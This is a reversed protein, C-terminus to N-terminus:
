DLLTHHDLKFCPYPSSIVTLIQGADDIQRPGSAGHERLREAVM